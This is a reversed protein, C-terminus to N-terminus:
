FTPTKTHNLIKYVINVYQNTLHKSGVDSLVRKLVKVKLTGCFETSWPKAPNKSVTNYLSIVRLITGLVCVSPINEQNGMNKGM